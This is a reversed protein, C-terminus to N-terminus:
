TNKKKETKFHRSASNSPDRYLTERKAKQIYIKITFTNKLSFIQYFTAIKSKSSSETLVSVLLCTHLRQNSVSALTTHSLSVLVYPHNSHSKQQKAAQNLFIPQSDTVQVKKKLSWQHFYALRCIIKNCIKKKIIIKKM